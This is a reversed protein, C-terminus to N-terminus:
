CACGGNSPKHQNQNNLQVTVPFYIEEEKQQAAAAKAIVQFAEEVMINEKASVEFLQIDGHNKCWTQAKATPVKRDADRDVKNGLLIFPFNEPDKPAGQLLFEDRWTDLAEFSKANTIDYVIVCCDAGRYFAGGLSQFREQGATDWIQLTVMRDDIMVEKAMFDAGVTSRYQQTFRQNVYQNLLSTKGVGSDGVIIIKYLQKKSSAM